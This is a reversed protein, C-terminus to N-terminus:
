FDVKWDDLTVAVLISLHRHSSYSNKKLMKFNHISLSSEFEPAKLFVRSSNLKFSFVWVRLGTRRPTPGKPELITKEPKTPFKLINKIQNECYLNIDIIILSLKKLKM